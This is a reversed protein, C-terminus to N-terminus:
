GKRLGDLKKELEWGRAAVAVEGRTKEILARAVDQKRRVAVLATPHDFRMIEDYIEEMMDLYRGASAVDGGKLGELAFRRLEGVTDGLGLLYGTATVGLQEPAPLPEGHLISFSLSAEVLEQHAAEVMGSHYMEPHDELVSKLKSAEERAEALLGQVEEGRHLARIALGSVRAIARTSKVALERVTDKEDLEREIDDIIPRLGKM